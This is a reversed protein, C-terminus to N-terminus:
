SAKAAVKSGKSGGVKSDSSGADTKPKAEGEGAATGAAGDGKAEKGGEAPRGKDGEPQDGGRAYDTVYWGSGKFQFAPASILKRVAGECEPCAALPPDSLRQLVETREGCDECQYEYIPM